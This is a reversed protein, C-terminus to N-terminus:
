STKARIFEVSRREAYNQFPMVREVFGVHGGGPTLEFFFQNSERAEEFPFSKSDLFPDDRSSLLLTPVKISSLFQRSSSKTWYDRASSFGHLPATYAEDFDHFNKMQFLTDIAIKHPFHVYKGVIKTRLSELFYRMYLKNSPRRLCNASAELDCPVSVTVAAKVEKPTEVNEGLYKLTVNGGLSFGILVITQYRGLDVCHSVVRKLDASEGSHYSRLLRNPEGSCGRMNWALVDWGDAMFSRAMGLVYDRHSSGELGHSVIALRQHGHIRWDLDLFDGDDIELRQRVCPMSKIRRLYHPVITQSHGNRLFWPTRYTSTTVVPM